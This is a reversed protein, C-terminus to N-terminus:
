KGTAKKAVFPHASSRPLVGTEPTPSQTECDGVKPDNPVPAITHRAWSREPSLAPMDAGSAHAGRFLETAIILLGIM